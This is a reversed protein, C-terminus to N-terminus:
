QRIAKLLFVRVIEIKTGILVQNPADWCYIVGVVTALDPTWNAGKNSVYKTDWLLTGSLGHPDPLDVPNGNFNRVSSQSPAPYNIAFHLDPDFAEPLEAVDTAYPCTKAILTEFSPSFHSSIGPYGHLFVIEGTAPSFSQSLRHSPVPSKTSNAIIDDDIRAIAADTPKTICQFPHVIAIAHQNNDVFHALRYQQRFSAVHENTVIYTAGRLEIFTGSGIVRRITHELAAIIPTLFPVTHAAMQSGVSMLVQENVIPDFPM